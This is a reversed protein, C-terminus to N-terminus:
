SAASGAALLPPRSSHGTLSQAVNLTTVAASLSV